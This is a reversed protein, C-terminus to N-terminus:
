EKDTTRIRETAAIVPAEIAQSNRKGAAILEVAAHYRSSVGPQPWLGGGIILLTLVLMAIREPLRSRLDITAPHRTGTFVRFYAHMVALGNLATAIVVFTGIWPSIQVAGEVLLETGVFGITGPFGISAMGTLLFFVALMPIKEYLGHFQALSLRGTRAEVSRLTLGFGTLSLGVSLWVCLAGTLGIPTTIELGVLILSSHSLFLYTFFRRAERQVLAMGAAYVATFLSVVAISQLVWSPAIPLVLRMAGYVGVMPTVFLLATGFSAHEFLDTLWCHVPVIGNRLLVAMSLLLVAILSPRSAADSFSVISQGIVLLGIFVGMHLAYVRTSKQRRLLEIYPPITGAALLAVVAWPHRCSLTALLIAESALTSAFSFRRVKTRLTAMETLLYILAALPILPASLEDIVFVDEHFLREIVDWRDHAEFAHLLAFDQWAGVASLLTVGSIFLAHRRARDPDHITSVWVAGLVPMLVTFELWPFHLEIM